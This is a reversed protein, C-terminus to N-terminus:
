SKSAMRGALWLELFLMALAVLLIIQPLRNESRATVQALEPLAEEDLKTHEWGEPWTGSTWRAQESERPDINVAFLEAKEDPTRAANESSPTTNAERVRYFGALPTEAMTWHQWGPRSPDQESRLPVQRPAAQEGGRAFDVQGRQWALPSWPGHLPEGVSLTPLRLRQQLLVQLSEQILPHFSPLAPLVTWAAAAATTESPLSVPFAFVMTGRTEGTGCVLAPDPQDRWGLVVSQKTDDLSRVRFYRTFPIRTLDSREQEGFLRVVPHTYKLPDLFYTGRAAPELLEVPLLSQSGATLQRRYSDAQAREGLFWVAAGGQDLYERLTTADVTSFTAVDHFWIVQYEALTDRAWDTAAVIKLQLDMRERGLKGQQPDLAFRLPDVERPDSGGYVVLCRVPDVIRVAAYRTNDAAFDDPSLTFEVPWNGAKAARQTLTFQQEGLPPLEGQLRQLVQGESALTGRFAQAQASQNRLVVQFELDSGVAPLGATWELSKVSLNSALPEGIEWVAVSGLVLRSALERALSQCLSSGLPEWTNSALDSLIIVQQESFRREAFRTTQLLQNLARLTAALDATGDTLELGRLQRLLLDKDPTPDGIVVQTTPGMTVLSFGAGLERSEVFVTVREVLEEWRRQENQRAGLSASVDAVLIYHAASRQEDSPMVSQLTPGAAALVIAILLATRLLLLLWQEWHWYRSQKEAAARLFLMAGWAVEQRQKRQLLHLLWPALAVALWGLLPLETFGFAYIPALHVM